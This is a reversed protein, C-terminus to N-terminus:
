TPGASKQTRGVVISNSVKKAKKKAGESAASTGYGARRKGGSETSEPELVRHTSVTAIEKIWKTPKKITKQTKKETSRDHNTVLVGGGACAGYNREGLM